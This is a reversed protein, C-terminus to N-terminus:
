DKKPIDMFISPYRTMLQQVQERQHPHLHGLKDDLNTLIKSIKLHVSYNFGKESHDVTIDNETCKEPIQVCLNFHFSIKCFKLWM